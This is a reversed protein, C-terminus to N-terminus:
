LVEWVGELNERVEANTFRLVRHGLAELRQTGEADYRQQGAEGHTDGDIEIVLRHQPLYFDVIYRDVPRQRLV